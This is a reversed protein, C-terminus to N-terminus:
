TKPQLIDIFEDEFASVLFLDLVIPFTTFNDFFWKVLPDTFSQRMDGCPTVPGRVVINVVNLFYTEVASVRLAALNRQAGVFIHSIDARSFKHKGSFLLVFNV